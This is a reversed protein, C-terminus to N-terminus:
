LVGALERAKKLRMRGDRTHEIGSQGLMGVVLKRATLHTPETPHKRKLQLTGLSHIRKQRFELDGCGSEAQSAYFSQDANGAPSRVSRHCRRLSRLGPNGIAQDSQRHPNFVSFIQLRIKRLGQSRISVTSAM